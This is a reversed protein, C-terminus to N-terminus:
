EQPANLLPDEPERYSIGLRSAIERLRAIMRGHEIVLDDQLVEFITGEVINQHFELIAKHLREFLEPTPTEGFARTDSGLQEAFMQAMMIKEGGPTGIRAISLGDGIDHTVLQAGAPINIYVVAEIIEKKTM